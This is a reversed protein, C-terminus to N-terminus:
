KLGDLRAREGARMAAILRHYALPWLTEGDAGDQPFRVHGSYLRLNINKSKKLRVHWGLSALNKLHRRIDKPSVDPFVFAFRNEGILALDSAGAPLARRLNYALVRQWYRQEDPAAKTSVDLWPEFQLLVLTCTRSDMMSSNVLDNFRSEMAPANLLGTNPDQNYLKECEELYISRELVLHVFRMLRSVAFQEDASIEVPERSLFCMVCGHGPSLRAPLGWFTGHHPLNEGPIFLFHDAAEAKLKKVYLPKENRLVWGALGQEISFDKRAFAEPLEITSTVLRYHSEGPEALVMFGFEVGLFRACKEVVVRFYSEVPGEGFAADDLQYWLELIRAYNERGCLSDQSRHLEALLEATQRIWKIQQDNFGWSRKVDVYLVGTGDGVPTAFLGKISLDPGRYFPLNSAQKELDAKKSLHVDQGIKLVQSIVGTRELPISEGGSVLSLSEVAEPKLSRDRPEYVFFAATHAELFNLLLRVLTLYPNLPPMFPGEAKRAAFM